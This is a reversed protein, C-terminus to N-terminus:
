NVKKDEYRMYEILAEVEKDTLGQNPMPVMHVKLMEMAIPDNKLMEDPNKMWKRLWDIDRRETVGLLDPGVLKGKGITHCAVCGKASYTEKGFAVLEEDLKDNDNNKVKKDAESVESEAETQKEEELEKNQDQIEKQETMAKKEIESETERDSSSCSVLQISLFLILAIYKHKSM